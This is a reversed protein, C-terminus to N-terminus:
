QIGRFISSFWVGDGALGPVDFAATVAPTASKKPVYFEGRFGNVMM